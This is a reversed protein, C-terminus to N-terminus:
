NSYTNPVNLSVFNAFSFASYVYTHKTPNVYNIICNTNLVADNFSLSTLTNTIVQQAVILRLIFQTLVKHVVSNLFVCTEIEAYIDIGLM